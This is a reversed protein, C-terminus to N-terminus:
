LTRIMWNDSRGSLWAYVRRDNEFARTLANNFDKRNTYERQPEAEAPVGVVDDVQYSNGFPTLHREVSVIKGRRYPALKTTLYKDLEARRRFVKTSPGNPGDSETM